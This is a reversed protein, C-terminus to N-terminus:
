RRKFKMENELITPDELIELLSYEFEVTKGGNTTSGGAAESSKMRGPFHYRVKYSANGMMMKAMEIQSELEEDMM